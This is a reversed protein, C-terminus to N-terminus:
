RGARLEASRLEARRKAQAAAYIRQYNQYGTMSATNLQYASLQAQQARLQALMMQQQALLQTQYLMPYGTLQQTGLPRQTQLQRSQMGGGSCGGRGQAHTATTCVLFGLGALLAIVFRAM